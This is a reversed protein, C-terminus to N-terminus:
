GLDSTSAATALTAATGRSSVKVYLSLCCVVFALLVGYIMVCLGVLGGSPLQSRSEIGSSCLLLRSRWATGCAGMTPSLFQWLRLLINIGELAGGDRDWESLATRPHKGHAVPLFHMM